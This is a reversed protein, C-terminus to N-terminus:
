RRQKRVTAILLVLAVAEVAVVIGVLAARDGYLSGALVGAGLAGAGEFAAFVGYATGRRASPVLDAVLAKVTSDQIGVAAGWLAVGVLVTSFRNSLSLAPVLAVLVPLALLVAAGRKDYVYGSALAALAASAMAVAYVLPVVALPVMRADTLHFSILGFTVLGVNSALTAAAFLYFTAPLRARRASQPAAMANRGPGEPGADHGSEFVSMDPVRRRIWFLLAIAFAGPVALFVFAPWVASTLGVLAAVLVPGLFAGLQDLSKHVGFGRGRGVAGAAGALLVTKAPSRIAKGTRDGLILISALFLGAAGAFPSLALLPVCGATLAYGAITFTWYGRTRDAWPGFILRFGQAIAEGGGTVLGVVMATAGLEGLLSGAVSRAGDSVTDVALSVLGFSVVVRWASWSSAAVKSSGRTSGPRSSRRASM